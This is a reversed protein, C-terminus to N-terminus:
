NSMMTEMDYWLRQLAGEGLFLTLSLAISGISMTMVTLVLQFRNSRMGQFLMGLFCFVRALRGDSAVALPMSGM